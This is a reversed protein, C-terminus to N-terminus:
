FAFITVIFPNEDYMVIYGTLIEIIKAKGTAIMYVLKGCVYTCVYLNRLIVNLKAAQRVNNYKLNNTCIWKYIYKGTLTKIGSSYQFDM